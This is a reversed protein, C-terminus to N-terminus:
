GDEESSSKAIEYIEIMRNFAKGYVIPKAFQADYLQRKVIQSAKDLMWEDFLDPEVPITENGDCLLKLWWSEMPFYGDLGNNNCWAWVCGEIQKIDSESFCTDYSDISVGYPKTANLLSLLKIILGNISDAKDTGSFMCNGDVFVSFYMNYDFFTIFVQM